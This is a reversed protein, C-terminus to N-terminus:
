PRVRTAHSARLTQKENTVKFRYRVPLSQLSLIKEYELIVIEPETSHLCAAVVARASYAVREELISKAQALVPQYRIKNITSVLEELALISADTTARHKFHTYRLKPESGIFSFFLNIGTDQFHRAAIVLAQIAGVVCKQRLEPDLTAGEAISRCILVWVGLRRSIAPYNKSESIDGLTLMESLLSSADNMISALFVVVERCSRDHINARLYQLEQHSEKLFEATLYEQISVHSFACLNAAPSMLIGHHAELETLLERPEADGIGIRQAFAAIKSLLDEKSMVISRGQSFAAALQQLLQRRKSTTLEVFRSERRFGRSSDWRVLLTDLARLYLESRHIPLRLDNEFLICILALLLPTQALESVSPNTTLAEVLKHSLDQKGVFWSGIFARIENPSFPLVELHQFDPIDIALAASRCSVIVQAEPYLKRFKRIIALWGTQYSQPTEDLGDLILLVNGKKLMRELFPWADEDENMEVAGALFATLDTPPASYDRLAIYLPFLRRGISDSIRASSGTHGLVIASLFSTKGSGPGGLLLIQKYESLASFSDIEEPDVVRHDLANRIRDIAVFYNRALRKSLRTPVYISALSIPGQMSLIQVKALETNLRQYHRIRIKRLLDLSKTFQDVGENIDTYVSHIAEKAVDTFWLEIPMSISRAQALLILDKVMLYCPM